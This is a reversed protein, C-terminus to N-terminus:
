GQPHLKKLPDSARLDPLDGFDALNHTQLELDSTMATAAIIADGLSMRRRQRLLVAQAVVAPTVPLQHTAAFFQEFYDRQTPTLQHYGLVEIVSVVSAAPGREAFWCRLAALEPQAAYIILNSDLLM